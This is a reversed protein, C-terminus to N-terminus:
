FRSKGNLSAKTVNAYSKMLDVTPQFFDKVTINYTKGQYYSKDFSLTNQDVWIKYHMPKGDIPEVDVFPTVLTDVGTKASLYALAKALASANPLTQYPNQNFMPFVLGTYTSFDSLIQNIKSGDAILGTM